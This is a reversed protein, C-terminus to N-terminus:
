RSSSAPPATTSGGDAYPAKPCTVSRSGEPASPSARRVREPGAVDGPARQEHQQHPRGDAGDQGRPRELPLSTRTGARRGRRAPAREAPRGQDGVDADHQGAAGHPQGAGAEAARGPRAAGVPENVGWPASFRWEAMSNPLRVSVKTSVTIAMAVKTLAQCDPRRSSRLSARSRARLTGAWATSPPMVTSVSRFGQTTEKWRSKEIPM